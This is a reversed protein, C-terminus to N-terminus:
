VKMSEAWSPKPCPRDPDLSVSDIRKGFLLLVCDMIRMILHPPKALKRVTAIHAAKITQVHPPHLCCSMFHSHITLTHLTHTFLLDILYLALYYMFKNIYVCLCILYLWHYYVYTCSNCVVGVATSVPLYLVSSVLVWRYMSIYM